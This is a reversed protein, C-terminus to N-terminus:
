VNYDICGSFIPEWQDLLLASSTHAPRYPDQTHSCGIEESRIQDSHVLLFPVKERIVNACMSLSPQPNVSELM